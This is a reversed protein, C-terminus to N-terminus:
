VFRRRECYMRKVIAIRAIYRQQALLLARRAPLAATALRFFGTVV